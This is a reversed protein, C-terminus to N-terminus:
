NRGSHIPFRVRVHLGTHRAPDTFDLTIEAGLRKVLTRVIALGLGSGTQGSGLTRYFPDFVRERETLAIGPGTDAVHLTIADPERTVSLDVRGGEPTYRIANDVLNKIVTALALEDVVIQADENGELGIDIHRAEAQLMLGELARRYTQQISVVSPAHEAASQAHALALLQNLLNRVREIGSRLEALRAQAAAPMDTQTLREAQLSLATMPSRLEHAADAVFRRQAEMAQRVRALLRDIARVFPRVETLLHADDIPSLDREGRGDIGAALTTVPRFMGRVLLVVILVLIPVFLLFPAVTRLAGRTAIRDRFHTEQAVAIRQGQDNKRVIVRYTEHGLALTYRGDGLDNPLPLAVRHDKRVTLPPSDPMLPWVVVQSDDDHNRLRLVRAALVPQREMVGAIQYLIDDQLRHAEHRASLFAFTGAVVAMVLIALSLVLSLRFQISHRAREQLGTLRTKFGAM